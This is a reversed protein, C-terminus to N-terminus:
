CIVGPLTRCKDTASAMVNCRTVGWSISDWGLSFRFYLWVAHSIIETPFRYGTDWPATSHFADRLTVIETAGRILEPLARPATPPQSPLSFADSTPPVNDTPLILAQPVAAPILTSLVMIAVFLILSRPPTRQRTAGVTLLAM